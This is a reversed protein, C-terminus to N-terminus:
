ATGDSTSNKAASPHSRECQNPHSPEDARVAPAPITGGLMSRGGFYGREAAFCVIEPRYAQYVVVSDDDFQALIQRGSAPWRRARYFSRKGAGQLGVLIVLDMDAENTGRM